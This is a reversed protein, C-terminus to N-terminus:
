FTYTVLFTNDGLSLPAPSSFTFSLSGNDSSYSASGLRESGDANGDNNADLYISVASIDNLEDLSGSATISLGNMVSNTSNSAVIFRLVVQEGAGNSFTSATATSSREATVSLAVSIGGPDKIVGDATGDADNPGGDQILLQLCDNGAILGQTYASDNAAPCQGVVRAASYVQNDTDIVFDTWGQSAIYKRYVAGAPIVANLPIVVYVSDGASPIDQVEFDFIGLPYSIGTDVGNSVSDGSDGFDMIDEMDVDAISEGVAFATEGLTVRIGSEVVINDGSETPLETTNSNSDLYDPIGDNDSDDVGEDSDSQGDGDSDANGLAAVVQILIV